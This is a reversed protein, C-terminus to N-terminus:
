LCLITIKFAGPLLCHLSVEHTGRPSNRLSESGTAPSQLPSFAERSRPSMDIVDVGTIRGSRNARVVWAQPTHSGPSGSDVPLDEVPDRQLSLRKSNFQVINRQLISSERVPRRM